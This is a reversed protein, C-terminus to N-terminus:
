EVRPVFAAQRGRGGAGARGGRGRMGARPGRGRGQGGAANWIATEIKWEGNIRRWVLVYKAAIERAQPGQSNLTISLNGSECAADPGLPKITVIEFELEKIQGAQEWFSQIDGRGTFTRPGPPLMVADDTYMATLAAFDGNNFTDAFRGSLAAIPSNADAGFAMLVERKTAACDLPMPGSTAIRPLSVFRDHGCKRRDTAAIAPSLGTAAGASASDGTGPSRAVTEVAVRYLTDWGILDEIDRRL